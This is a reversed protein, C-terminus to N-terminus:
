GQCLAVGFHHLCTAIALAVLSIITIKSFLTSKAILQFKLQTITAVEHIQVCLDREIEKSSREAMTSKFSEVSFNNAVSGFFIMSPDVPKANSASTLNPWISKIVWYLAVSTSIFVTVLLALIVWKYLGNYINVTEIKLLIGGFVAVNFSALLGSKFNVSGIYVDYRKLTEWLSSIRTKDEDNMASDKSLINDTM